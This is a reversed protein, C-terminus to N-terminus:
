SGEMTVFVGIVIFSVLVANASPWSMGSLYVHAPCPARGTNENSPIGACASVSASIKSSGSAGDPVNTCQIRHFIGAVTPRSPSAMGAPAISPMVLPPEDLYTGGHGGDPVCRYTACRYASSVVM